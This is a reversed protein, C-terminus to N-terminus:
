NKTSWLETVLLKYLMKARKEKSVNVKDHVLSTVFASSVFQDVFRDKKGLYTEVFGRLDNDMWRKLPIEFGRKPQNILEPPLYDLALDRLIKKTRVGDVKYSDSITPAYELMEKSLFPSRGELSNAMTAIDIKKLLPGGLIIEFDLNMQKKLGSLNSHDAMLDMIGTVKISPANYFRDAFGSFTDATSSWFVQDNQKTLIDVLRYIYNYKSKKNHPLPLMPKLFKGFATAM